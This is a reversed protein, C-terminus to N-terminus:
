FQQNLSYIPLIITVILFIVAAASVLLSIIAAIIGSKLYQDKQKTQSFNKVGLFLNVLAFIFLAFVGVKAVMLNAGANVNFESYLKGLQVNLFLQSVSALVQIIGFFINIGGVVKSKTMYLFTPTVSPIRVRSM